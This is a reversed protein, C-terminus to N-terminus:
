DREEAIQLFHHIAAFSRDAAAIVDGSQIAVDRM